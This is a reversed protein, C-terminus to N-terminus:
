YPCNDTLVTALLGCGAILSFSFVSLKLSFVEKNQRGGPPVKMWERKRM